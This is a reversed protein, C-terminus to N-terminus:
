LTEKDPTLHLWAGQCSSLACFPDYDEFLDEFSIVSIPTLYSLQLKTIGYAPAVSWPLCFGGFYSNVLV